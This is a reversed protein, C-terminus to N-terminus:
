EMEEEPADAEDAQDDTAEEEGDVEEVAAEEDGDDDGMAMSDDDLDDAQNVLKLIDEEMEEHFM